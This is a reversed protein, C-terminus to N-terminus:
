DVPHTLELNKLTEWVSNPEGNITELSETERGCNRCQLWCWQYCDGAIEACATSEEIINPTNCCQTM